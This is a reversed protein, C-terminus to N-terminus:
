INLLPFTKIRQKTVDMHKVQIFNVTQKIAWGVLLLVLLVALASSQKAAEM